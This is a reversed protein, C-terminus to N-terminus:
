NETDAGEVKPFYQFKEGIKHGSPIAIGLQDISFVSEPQNLSIRLKEMTFPAFPYLMIM